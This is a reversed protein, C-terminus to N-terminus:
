STEYSGPVNVARETFGIYEAESYDLVHCLGVCWHMSACKPHMWDFKRDTRSCVECNMDLDALFKQSEALDEETDEEGVACACM